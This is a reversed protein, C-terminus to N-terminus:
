DGKEGLPIKEIRRQHRGGDFGTALFIDVIRLAADDEIFRAPLCLVNADNHRRTIEAVEENWVLAARVAVHKNATMCAGEGSGCVSIGTVLSGEDIAYGMPHIYDAYDTSEESDTGFDKVTYGNAILHAKVTEKLHFGAHDAAIGITPLSM